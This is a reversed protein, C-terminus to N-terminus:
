RVRFEIFQTASRPERTALKDTVTVLMVYEGPAAQADLAVQGTVGRSKPDADADFTLTVPQGNYMARGAAFIRTQSEVHCRKDAGVTSNFINYEFRITAGPRFTLVVPTENPATEPERRLGVGSIAFRGGAIDPVEVFRTALGFRDAPGDGVAV